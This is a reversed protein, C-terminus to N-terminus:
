VMYTVSGTLLYLVGSLLNTTSLSIGTSGSGTAYISLSTAGANAVTTLYTTSAPYIIGTFNVCSGYMTDYVTAPLGTILFVGSATTYTPTFYLYYKLTVINGCRVYFGSQSTYAVSLDGPTGFTVVPTWSTPSNSLAISGSGAVNQGLATLVGTGLALGSVTTGSGAYYALQGATGSNVIGSAGATTALTGSTPFTVSTAGTFTFTSAFAGALTHVGATTLAGGLSLPFAGWAPAASSGSLLPLNATATGALIAMASATSYVIGGNSATLSANSGGRTLALQGSWGLTLSAANVLATSPSGGLTLTVNTDDTKTLAAPTVLQTTTALTGSTPFTVNTAGTMTFVSAFAGSTALTGALTLTNAGNNVGTGGLVPSVIGSLNVTISGSGNAVTINTGSNIAAAVPAGSTTGVLIQGAILPVWAPVGSGNTTLVGQNAITLGSITSGAAAYYGIQNILGPSVIGSAGSTFAVTGDADPWTVTRIAATNAFTFQTSHQYGTGTVFNIAGVSSTTEFYFIGLGKTTLAMAINTDSGNVGIIPAQGSIQNSFTLYNVSSAISAFTVIPLTGGTNSIGTVGNITSSLNLGVFTPTSATGIDQPTTLIIDTGTVPTGFTGNVLVQNETGELSLVTGSTFSVTGDADPWMVTRSAATNAFQFVTEHQLATGSFFAIPIVSTSLFFHGGSGKASYNIGVDTSLGAAVLNANAGAIGGSFDIYNVDAPDNVSFGVVINGNIDKVGAPSQFYGTFGPGYYDTGNVAIDLTAVGLTITQKLIGNALAGLNQADPLSSDATYTVFPGQTFASEQLQTWQGLIADYYEYLQEDTNFRLRYNILSSPTPREATTGPPLFTWPNNFLVNAGNLLGPTKENNALDGGDTMQSFKITEITM